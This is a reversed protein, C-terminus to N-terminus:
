LFSFGFAKGTKKYALRSFQDFNAAICHIACAADYVHKSPGYKEQHYYSLLAVVDDRGYWKTADRFSVFNDRGENETRATIRGLKTVLKFLDPVVVIRDELNILFKSCFYPTAQPFFKVDFGLECNLRFFDFFKKERSLILSDDGSFCVMTDSDFDHVYALLVMNIITNGLWTNSGGTRRQAGVSVTLSKDFTSCLSEYESSYWWDLFSENVILRRLVEEEIQKMLPGQSKDYKSIDVECCHLGQIKSSLGDNLIDEFNEPSLGSTLVFNRKLCRQLRETVQVFVHSFLANIAPQHYVINQGAPMSSLVSEDLKPKAETKLMLKFNTLSQEFVIPKEIDKRLNVMRRGDRKETWESLAHENFTLEDVTEQALRVPDIYNDFFKEVMRKATMDSCLRDAGVDSVFNRAEFTMLNSKLTNYKKSGISSRIVPISNRLKEPKLTGESDRITVNDVISSFDSFEVVDNLHYFDLSTTGNVCDDLFWNIAEVHAKPARSIPLEAKPVGHSLSSYINPASSTHYVASCPNKLT